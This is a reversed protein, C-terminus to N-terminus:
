NGGKEELRQELEAIKADKDKLQQQFNSIINQMQVMDAYLKGIISFLEEMM